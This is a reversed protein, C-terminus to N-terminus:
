FDLILADAPGHEGQFRYSLRRGPRQWSSSFSAALRPTGQSISADSRDRDAMVPCAEGKKYPCWDHQM